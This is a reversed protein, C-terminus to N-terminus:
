RTWPPNDELVSLRFGYDEVTRKYKSHRTTGPTIMVSSGENLTCKLCSELPNTWGPQKLIDCFGTPSEELLIETLRLRAEIM